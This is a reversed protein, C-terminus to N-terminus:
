EPVVNVNPLEKNSMEIPKPKNSTTSETEILRGKHNRRTVQGEEIEGLAKATKQESNTIVWKENKTNYDPDSGKKKEALYEKTKGKQLAMDFVLAHTMEHNLITTPSLVVDEDTELGLSPNWSVTRTTYDFHIDTGNTEAIYYTIASKQLASIIGGIKHKNLYQVAAKFHEKFEASVGPAFKISDGTLDVLGVPNNACYAYPSMFPM